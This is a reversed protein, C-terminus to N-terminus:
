RPWTVKRRACIADLRFAEDVTMVPRAAEIEFVSGV